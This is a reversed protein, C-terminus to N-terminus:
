KLSLKRWIGSGQLKNQRADHKGLYWRTHSKASLFPENLRCTCRSSLPLFFFFPLTRVCACTKHFLFLAVIFVAAPRSPSYVAACEETVSVSYTGLDYRVRPRESEHGQPWWEEEGSHPCGTPHEEELWPTVQCGLPSCVHERGSVHTQGVETGSPRGASTPVQWYM